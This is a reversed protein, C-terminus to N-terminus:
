LVSHLQTATHVHTHKPKLTKEKKKKKKPPPTPSHKPIVQNQPFPPVISYLQWHPAPRPTILM